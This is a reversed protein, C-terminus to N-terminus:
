LCQAVPKVKVCSSFLGSNCWLNRIPQPRTSTTLCTHINQRLANVSTAAALYQQCQYPTYEPPCTPTTILNVTASQPRFFLRFGFYGLAIIALAIFFITRTSTTRAQKTKNM